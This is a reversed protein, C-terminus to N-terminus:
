EATPAFAIQVGGTSKPPISASIQSMTFLPSSFEDISLSLDFTGSNTVIVSGLASGGIRVGGFDTTDTTTLVMKPLGSRASIGIQRSPIADDCNIVLTAADTAESSSTYTFTINSTAAPLLNFSAASTLTFKSGQQTNPISIGSVHLTDDGTNTMQIAGQLVAGVRTLGMDYNTAPLLTLVPASGAGSLSISPISVSSQASLVLSGTYGVKSTPSFKLTINVTGSPPINQASGGVLTFGTGTVSPAALFLTDDGSNTVTYVVQKNTGVRVKSFPVDSAGSFVADIGVGVIPIKKVQDAATTADSNITLTDYFTGRGTPSFIFSETESSNVAISRNTGSPSHSYMTGIALPSSSITLAADPGTSNLTLTQTTSSGVRKSGFNVSSATLTLAKTTSSSAAATFSGTMGMMYHYNCQYNYTGAVSVIYVFTTASTSSPGIHSAGSPLSTSEIVHASFTGSWVITDGTNVSLTNPSFSSGSFTITYTTAYTLTPVFSIAVLLLVVIFLFSKALKM